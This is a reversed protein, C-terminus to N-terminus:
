YVFHGQLREARFELTAARYGSRLPPLPLCDQWEASPPLQGPGRYRPSEYLPRALNVTDGPRYAAIEFRLDLLAARGGNRLRLLLPRDAPCAQPAHALHLELLSLQQADRQEESYVWVGVLALGLLATASIPLAQGPYRVLLVLWSLALLIGVLM